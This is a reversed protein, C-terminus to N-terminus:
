KELSFSGSGFAVIMLLGGMLGLNKLFAIEEEPFDGHFILTAPILFGILLLAGIKAKYGLLVSLGGIILVVITLMLLIGTFPLGQSAMYAQTAAPALIKSIGSKLFIASLFIRALFPVYNQLTVQNLM